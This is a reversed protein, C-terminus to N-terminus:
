CSLPSWMSCVSHPEKFKGIYIRRFLILRLDTWPRRRCPWTKISRLLKLMDASISYTMCQLMRQNIKSRELQCTHVARYNRTARENEMHQKSITEVAREYTTNIEPHFHMSKPKWKWRKVIQCTTGSTRNSYAQLIDSFDLNYSLAWPIVALQTVGFKIVVQLEWVKNSTFMTEIDQHTFVAQSYLKFKKRCM